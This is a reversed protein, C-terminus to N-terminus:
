FAKVGALKCEHFEIANFRNWQFPPQWFKARPRARARHARPLANGRYVRESDIQLSQMGGGRHKVPERIPRFLRMELIVTRDARKNRSDRADFHTREDRDSFHDRVASLRFFPSQEPILIITKPSNFTFELHRKHQRGSIIM